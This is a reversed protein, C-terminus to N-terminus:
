LCHKRWAENGISIFAARNQEWGTICHYDLFPLGTGNGEGTLMENSIQLKRGYWAEASASCSKVDQDM